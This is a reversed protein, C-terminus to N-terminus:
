DWGDDDLWADTAPDVGRKYNGNEDVPFPTPHDLAGSKKIVDLLRATALKREDAHIAIPFSKTRIIERFLINVATSQDMGMADLVLQAQEKVEADMKININVKTSAQATKTRAM